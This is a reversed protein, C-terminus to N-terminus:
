GSHTCLLWIIKDKGQVLGPLSASTKLFKKRDPSVEETVVLMCQKVFEANTFPRGTKAIIEAVYSAVYSACVGSENRICKVNFINQQGILSAKSNNIKRKRREGTLCYFKGKHESKYHCKINYEKVVSVM